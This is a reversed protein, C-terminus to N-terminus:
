LTDNNDPELTEAYREPPASHEKKGIGIFIDRPENGSEPIRQKKSVIHYELELIDYFAHKGLSQCHHNWCFSCYRKYLEKRQEYVEKELICEENVFMTLSDTSLFKIEKVEEWFDMNSFRNGNNVYRMIGPLAYKMVIMPMEDALDELLRPNMNEASIVHEFPVILLRQWFADGKQLGEIRNLSNTAFVLAARNKFEIPTGYKVDCNRMDGGSLNKLTTIDKMSIQDTEACANLMSGSLGSTRFNKTIDSIAIATSFDRGVICRLLEIFVSKGTNGPGSFMFITKSSRINSIVYGIIECLLIKMEPMGASVDEMFRDFHPTQATCLAPNFAMPLVSRLNFDPSHEKMCGTVIDYTCNQFNVYNGPQILENESLVYAKLWTLIEKDMHNTCFVQYASPMNQRILVHFDEEFSKYYGLMKDYVMLKKNISGGEAKMINYNLFVHALEKGDPKNIHSQGQLSSNIDKRNDDEGVPSIINSNTMLITEQIPVEGDAARTLRAEKDISTVLQIPERRDIWKVLNIVDNM